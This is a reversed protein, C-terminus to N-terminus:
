RGRVISGYLGTKFIVSAPFGLLMAAFTMPDLLYYSLMLIPIASLLALARALFDNM